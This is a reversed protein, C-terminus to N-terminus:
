IVRAGGRMKTNTSSYSWKIGEYFMEMQLCQTNHPDIKEIRWRRPVQLLQEQCSVSLYIWTVCYNFPQDVSPSCLWM